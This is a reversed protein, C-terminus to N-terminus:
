VTLAVVAPPPAFILTSTLANQFGVILGFRLAQM